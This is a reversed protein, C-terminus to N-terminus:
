WGLVSSVVVKFAFDDHETTSRVTADRESPVAVEGAVSRISQLRVQWVVRSVRCLTIGCSVRCVACSVVCLVPYVVSSVHCMVCSVRCVTSSM